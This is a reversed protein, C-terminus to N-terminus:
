FLSLWITLYDDSFFKCPQFRSMLYITSQNFFVKWNELQLRTDFAKNIKAKVAATKTVSDTTMTLGQFNVFFSINMYTISFTILSVLHLLICVHNYIIFIIYYQLLKSRKKKSFIVCMEKYFQASWPPSRLVNELKKTNTLTYFLYVSTADINNLDCANNNRTYSTSIGISYLFSIHTKRKKKKETM